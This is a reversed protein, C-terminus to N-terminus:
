VFVSTVKWDSFLSSRVVGEFPWARTSDTSPLRSVSANKRDSGENPKLSTSNLKNLARVPVELTDSVKLPPVVLEKLM